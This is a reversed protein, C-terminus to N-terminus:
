HIKVVMVSVSFRKAEDKVTAHPLFVKTMGVPLTQLCVVFQIKTHNDRCHTLPFKQRSIIGAAKFACCGCRNAYNFCTTMLCCFYLALFLVSMGLILHNSAHHLEVIVVGSLWQMNFLITTHFNSWKGSPSPLWIKLDSDFAQSSDPAAVFTLLFFLYMTSVRFTELWSRKGVTGMACLCREDDQCLFAWLLGEQHDQQCWPLQRSHTTTPVALTNKM